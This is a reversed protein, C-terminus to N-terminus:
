QGSFLRPTESVVDYAIVKPDDTTQVYQFTVKSNLTALAVAISTTKQGGTADIIIEGEPTGREKEQDIIQQIADRVSDLDEFDVPVIYPTIAAQPFYQQLFLKCVPLWPYSGDQGSSGILHIRGKSETQGLKDRHEKVARLIQQWNWRTGDLAHIDTELDGTFTITKGFQMSSPFCTAKPDVPPRPNPTSVMLVLCAHPKCAQRSLSRVPLYRQRHNYIWRSSWVFLSTVALLTWIKYQELVPCWKVFLADGTVGTDVWSFSFACIIPVVVPSITDWKKTLVRTVNM